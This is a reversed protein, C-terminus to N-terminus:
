QMLEILRLRAHALLDLSGRPPVDGRPDQMVQHRQPLGHEHDLLVADVEVEVAPVDFRRGFVQPRRVGLSRGGIQPDQGLRVARDPHAPDAGPGVGPAGAQGRRQHRVDHGAGIGGALHHDQPGLGMEVAPVAPEAEDDGARTVQLVADRV